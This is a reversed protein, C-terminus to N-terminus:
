VSAVADADDEDEYANADLLLLKKADSGRELQRRAVVRADVSSTDLAAPQPQRGQAGTAVAASTARARGAPAQLTARRELAPQSGATLGAGPVAAAATKAPALAARDIDSKLEIGAQTATTSGWAEEVASSGSSSTASTISSYSTYSSESGFSPAPQRSPLM